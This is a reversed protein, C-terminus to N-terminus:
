NGIHFEKLHKSVQSSVEYLVDQHLFHAGIGGFVAVLGLSSILLGWQTKKLMLQKLDTKLEVILEELHKIRLSLTEMSHVESM